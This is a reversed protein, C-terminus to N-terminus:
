PNLLRLPFRIEDKLGSMFCSLKYKESLGKLRNSLVEFQTKYLTVTSTQRLRTLAEMPDDYAPGFRLLLAKTFAEWHTFYGCEESNRFWILLEGEMHFSALKLRKTHQLKIIILVNSWKTFRALQIIGMLSLSIWGQLDPIIIEIGNIM